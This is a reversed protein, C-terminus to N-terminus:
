PRAPLVPAVAPSVVTPQSSFKPSGMLTVAMILLSLFGVIGGVIGLISQLGAQGQTVSHRHGETDGATRDLRSLAETVKDGLSKISIEVEARPMLRAAQDALTARFENVSEFRRESAAEAKLVAKEAANM